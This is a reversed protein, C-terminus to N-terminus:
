MGYAYSSKIPDAEADDQTDSSTTTDFEAAVKAEARLQKASKREIIVNYEGATIRCGSLALAIDIRAALKQRKDVDQPLITIELEYKAM